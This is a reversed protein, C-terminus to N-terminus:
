AKLVEGLTNLCGASAQFALQSNRHDGSDEAAASSTDILEHVPLTFMLNAPM